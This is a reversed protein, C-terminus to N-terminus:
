LCLSWVKTTNDEGGTVLWKADGSMSVSRVYRTHAKLMKVCEGTNMNFIRVLGDGAGTALWKSDDSISMSQLFGGHQLTRICEGTERNWVKVTYDESGSIIWDKSSVVAYIGETHGELTRVESGDEVNLITVKNDSRGLVLYKSDESFTLTNVNFGKSYSSVCKGSVCEYVNVTNDDSTTAILKSDNSFAICEIYKKHAKVTYMCGGTERNYVKLCFDGEKWYDGTHYEMAIWKSDGSIVALSGIFTQVCEATQTNMLVTKAGDSFTYFKGDRSISVKYVSIENRVTKVLKATSNLFVNLKNIQQDFDVSLDSPSVRERLKQLFALNDTLVSEALVDQYENNVITQAVETM